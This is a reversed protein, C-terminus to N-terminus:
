YLEKKLDIGWCKSSRTKFHVAL